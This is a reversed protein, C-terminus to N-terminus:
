IRYIGQFQAELILKAVEKAKRLAESLESDPLSGEHVLKSRKDYADIASDAMSSADEYGVEELTRHVMARVQSRISLDRRFILERELSALGEYDQTGRPTSALVSELEDKWKDLLRLAADPKKSPVKLAELVMTLTLLRANASYEYFHSSYLDLATRLRGDTPIQAANTASSGRIIADAVIDIPTSIIASGKGASLFRIRKDSSYISPYEGNVLGDIPEAQGIGFARALNEGAKEPDDAYTVRDFKLDASFGVDRQILLWALGSWLKAALIPAHDESAIGSIKIIYREGTRSFSAPHGLMQFEFGQDLASFERGPSIEFPFRLTFSM